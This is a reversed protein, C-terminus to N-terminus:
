VTVLRLFDDRERLSALDPDQQAWTKLVPVADLDNASFADPLYNMAEDGRGSRALACALDYSVDSTAKTPLSTAQVAVYLRRHIAIAKEPRGTRAFYEAYEGMPARAGAIFVDRWVYQPHDCPEGPEAALQEETVTRLAEHLEATARQAVLHVEAWSGTPAAGPEPCGSPQGAAIQRLEDVAATRHAAARGVLDKISPAEETGTAERESLDLEDILLWEENRAVTLTRRVGDALPTHNM